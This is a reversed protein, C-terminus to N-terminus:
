LGLWGAGPQLSPQTLVGRKRRAARNRGPSATPPVVLLGLWDMFWTAQERRSTSDIGVFWDAGIGCPESNTTSRWRRTIRSLLYEQYINEHCSRCNGATLHTSIVFGRHDVRQKGAAPQHCDLCNIGNKAHASMEYERVVSYQLRAHREARKGSARVFDATPQKTETKQRARNVLFASVILAIYHCSCHLGFSLVDIRVGVPRFALRYGVTGRCM